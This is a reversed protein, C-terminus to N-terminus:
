NDYLANAKQFYKECVLRDLVAIKIITEVVIAMPLPGVRPNGQM